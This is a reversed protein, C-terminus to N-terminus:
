IWSERSVKVTGWDGRNNVNDWSTDDRKWSIWTANKKLIEGQRGWGWLRWNTVFTPITRTGKLPHCAGPGEGKLLYERQRVTPSGSGHVGHSKRRHKIEQGYDSTKLASLSSKFEVGAPNKHDKYMNKNLEHTLLVEYHPSHRWTRAAKVLSISTQFQNITTQIQNLFWQHLFVANSSLDPLERANVHTFQRAVTNQHTSEWM